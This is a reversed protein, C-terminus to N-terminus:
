NNYIHIFWAGMISMTILVTFVIAGVFELLTFKKM